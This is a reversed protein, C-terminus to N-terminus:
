QNLRKALVTNVSMPERRLPLAQGVPPQQRRDLLSTESTQEGIIAVHRLLGVQTALGYRDDGQGRVPNGNDHAPHAVDGCGDQLGLRSLMHDHCQIAAPSNPLM